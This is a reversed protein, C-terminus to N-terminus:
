SVRFDRARTGPSPTFHQVRKEPRLVVSQRTSTRCRDITVQGADHFLLLDLRVLYPQGALRRRSAAVWAFWEGARIPLLDRPKGSQIMVLQDRTAPPVQVRVVVSLAAFAVREVV